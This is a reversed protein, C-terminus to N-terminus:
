DGLVRKAVGLVMHPDVGAGGGGTAFASNGGGRCGTSDCVSRMIQHMDETRDDSRAFAIGVKDTEKGVLFVVTNPREVLMHALQRVEQATRADLIASIVGGDRETTSSQLRECDALLRAERLESITADQLRVKDLLSRTRQVIEGTNVDLLGAVDSAAKAYRLAVEEARQGCVFELRHTDKEKRIGLILILRVDGTTKCHTGGCPSWDFGEVRVIRVTEKDPLVGRVPLEQLEADTPFLVDVPRSEDVVTNALKLVSDLEDAAPRRELVITSWDPGIAFGVTPIDCVRILAQSLIHQGTHQQMHDHRRPWDVRCLVANSADIAGGVVHVLEEADEYVDLVDVAGITGTDHPQGGSTPYFATESLSLL